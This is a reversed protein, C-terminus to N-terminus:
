HEKGIYLPNIKKDVEYAHLSTNEMQSRDYQIHLIGPIRTASVVAFSLFIIVMQLSLHLWRKNIQLRPSWPFFMKERDMIMNKELVVLLAPFFTHMAILNSFTGILGIMGFESFGKFGSFCLVGFAIMTTIASGRTAVSTQSFTHKFSTQTNHGLDSEQLFRSLLYIGYDSGLGALVAASFGTVLNVHGLVFYVIGGTWLIAVILPIGISFVPSLRRYYIILVLMLLALVASSIRGMQEKLHREQELAKVFDGGYSVRIGHGPKSRLENDVTAQVHQVFVRTAQLDLSLIAPKVLVAFLTGEENQYYKTLSSYDVGGRQEYRALIDSFSPGDDLSFLLEGFIPSAGKSM